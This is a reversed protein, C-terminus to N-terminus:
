DLARYDGPRGGLHQALAQRECHDPDVQGHEMRSIKPQSVELLHALAAQTGVRKIRRQRIRHGVALKSALAELDPETGKSM